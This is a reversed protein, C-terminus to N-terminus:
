DEYNALLFPFLLFSVIVQQFYYVSTKHSDLYDSCLFCPHELEPILALWLILLSFFLVM